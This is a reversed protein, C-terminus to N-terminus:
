AKGRHADSSFFIGPDCRDTGALQGGSSIGEIVRNEPQPDTKYTRDILPLFENYLANM